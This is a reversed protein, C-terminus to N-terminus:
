DDERKSPHSEDRSKDNRPANCLCGTVLLGAMRRSFLDPDSGAELGPLGSVVCCGEHFKVGADMLIWALLATDTDPHLEGRQAREDLLGKLRCYPRSFVEGVLALGDPSGQLLERRVLRLLQDGEALLDIQQRIFGAMCDSLDGDRWAQEEVLWLAREAVQWLVGQYLAEKSPFHHFITAKGVGAERAIRAISVGDVGHEAFLDTAVEIIRHAGESLSQASQSANM